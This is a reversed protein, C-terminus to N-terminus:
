AGLEKSIESLKVAKVKIEKTLSIKEKNAYENPYDNYCIVRKLANRGREQKYSLMGRVTRKMIKEAQKPFHPGKLSSGGRARAQKYEELILKKKGTILANNCNVIIVRKGLLAQKAAYSAIRGLIGESADIIIENSM